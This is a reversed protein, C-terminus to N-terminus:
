TAAPSGGSNGLELLASIALDHSFKQLSKECCDCLSVCLEELTEKRYKAVSVKWKMRSNSNFHIIDSLVQFHVACRTPM